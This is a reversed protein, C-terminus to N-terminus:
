TLRLADRLARTAAYVEQNRASPTGGRGIFDVGPRTFLESTPAFDIKALKERYATLDTREDEDMAEHLAGAIVRLTTTSALISQERFQKMIAVGDKSTEAQEIQEKTALLEPRASDILDFLETGKMVLYDHDHEKPSRGRPLVSGLDFRKLGDYVGSLSFFKPDSATIRSKTLEVVGKLLPHEDALTQAAQAYPDRNDFTINLAKSVVKPTANMDSFMQRRKAYDDEVYLVIASSDQAVDEEDRVAEGIAQRRHQGDLCRLKAEMPIVLTGVKAGPAVPHFYSDDIEDIAYTMAGLIYDAPNDVIYQAIDDAHKKDLSRQVRNGSDAVEAEAAFNRMLVNNTVLLLYMRRDGQKGQMAPIHIGEQLPTFVQTDTPTTM